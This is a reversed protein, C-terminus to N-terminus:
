HQSLRCFFNFETDSFLLTSLIFCYFPGAVTFDKPMHKFRLASIKLNSVVYFKTFKGDPKGKFAADSENRKTGGVCFDVDSFFFYPDLTEWDRRLTNMLCIANFNWGWSENFSIFCVSRWRKDWMPLCCGKISITTLIPCIYCEWLAKSYLNIQPLARKFDVWKMLKGVYHVSNIAPVESAQLMPAIHGSNLLRSSSCVYQRQVLACPVRSPPKSSSLLIGPTDKWECFVFM